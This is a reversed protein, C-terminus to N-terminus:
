FLFKPVLIPKIPMNLPTVSMAAAMSAVVEWKPVEQRPALDRRGPLLPKSVACVRFAARLRPQSM